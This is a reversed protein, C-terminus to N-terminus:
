HTPEDDIEQIHLQAQRILENLSEKDKQHRLVGMGAALVFFAGSKPDPLSLLDNMAQEIKVNETSESQPM